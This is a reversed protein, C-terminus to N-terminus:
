NTGIKKAPARRHPQQPTSEHEKIARCAAVYVDAWTLSNCVENVESIQNTDTLPRNPGLFDLDPGNLLRMVRQRGDILISPVNNIPVMCYIFLHAIKRATAECYLKGRHRGKAHLGLRTQLPKVFDDWKKLAKRERPTLSQWLLRCEDLAWNEDLEKKAGVGEYTRPPPPYLKRARRRLLKLGNQIFQKRRRELDPHPDAYPVCITAYRPNKRFM